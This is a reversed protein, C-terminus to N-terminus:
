GVYAAGPAWARLSEGDVTRWVGGFVPYGIGTSAGSIMVAGLDSPRKAANM